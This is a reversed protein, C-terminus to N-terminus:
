CLKQSIQLSFTCSFGTFNSIAASAGQSLMPAAERVISALVRAERERSELWGGEEFGLRYRGHEGLARPEVEVFRARRM